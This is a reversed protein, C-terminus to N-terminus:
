WMEPHPEHDYNWLVASNTPNFLAWPNMSQVHGDCFLQNFNKGHRLGFEPLSGCEMSDFGGLANNSAGGFRSEGVSLMEAPVKVQGEFVATDGSWYVVPGIGFHKPYGFDEAMAGALNYTFSGFRSAGGKQPGTTLGEYGPCRWGSNTWRVGYYPFLKSSWYVLGVARGETGVADGYSPGASGLYYPYKSGNEHIYMQLAGGIQRMENKCVASQAHTKARSLAPLLLAALIGIIAVVMLLELLTFATGKPEPAENKSMFTLGDVEDVIV